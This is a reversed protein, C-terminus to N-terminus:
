PSSWMGKLEEEEVQERKRFSLEKDKSYDGKEVTIWKGRLM